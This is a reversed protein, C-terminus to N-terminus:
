ACNKLLMREEKEAVITRILEANLRHGSRYAVIRGMLDFGALALDGILDVIKHRVCEDPFRLQNDIPGEPGFVLLDRFTAHKALGRAKIEAAEAELLFTRSPALKTRFHRPSVVTELSQRGIPSCPGYDLEYRIYRKGSAAPRVELWGTQDGVRLVRPVYFRERPANQDKIGGSLLAEVFPLCSGDCGPMEPQDVWIECNDIELGSLAALVHEVMEVTVQGSRLTTRRPTDQCYRIDAPLRPCGEMDKRVFVIGSCPPAPRFEVRVKRGSWYGIGEVAAPAAITRQPRPADMSHDSNM